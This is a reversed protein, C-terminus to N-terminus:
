KTYTFTAAGTSTNCSMVNVYDLSYSRVSGDSEQTVIGDYGAFLDSQITSVPYVV